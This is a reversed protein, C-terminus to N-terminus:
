QSITPLALTSNFNLLRFRDLAAVSTGTTKSLLFQNSSHWVLALKGWKSHKKNLPNRNLRTVRNSNMRRIEFTGLQLGGVEFERPRPLWGAECLVLVDPFQSLSSSCQRIELCVLALSHLPIENSFRPPPRMQPLTTFSFNTEYVFLM